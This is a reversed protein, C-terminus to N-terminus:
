RKGARTYACLHLVRDVLFSRQQDAFVCQQEANERETGRGDCRYVHLNGISKLIRPCLLVPKQTRRRRAESKEAIGSRHSGSEANIDNASDIPLSTYLREAQM